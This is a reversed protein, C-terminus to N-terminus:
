APIMGIQQLIVVRDMVEWDEVIKGGVFRYVATAPMAVPRGTAPMGAFDGRHHGAATFHVAVTDDGAVLRHVTLQADPFGQLFGDLFLQVGLPGPPLEPAAANHLVFDPAFFEGLRDRWSGDNFSALWREVLAVNEAQSM